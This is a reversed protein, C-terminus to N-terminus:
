SNMAGARAVDSSGAAPRTKPPVAMVTRPWPKRVDWPAPTFHRNPFTVDTAFTNVSVSATHVDGRPSDPATRNQMIETSSSTFQSENFVASPSLWCSDRAEDERGACRREDWGGEGGWLEGGNKKGEEKM